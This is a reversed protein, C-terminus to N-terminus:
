IRKRFIAYINVLFERVTGRYIWCAGALFYLPFSAHFNDERFMKNGVSTHYLVYVGDVVLWAIFLSGVVWLSWYPPRNRLALLIVRFSWPACLYTLFGMLLTVGIDWDAIGYNIAGYLLWSM